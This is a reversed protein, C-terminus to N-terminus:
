SLKAFFVPLISGLFSRITAVQSNQISRPPV